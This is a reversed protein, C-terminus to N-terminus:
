RKSDEEPLTCLYPSIEAGLCGSAAECADREDGELTDCIEIIRLPAFPEIVAFRRGSPSPIILTGMGHSMEEETPGVLRTIAGTDTSRRWWSIVNHTSTAFYVYDGRPGFRERLTKPVKKWTLKRVGGALQVEYPEGHAMVLFAKKSLWGLFGFSESVSQDTECPSRAFNIPGNSPLKTPWRMVIHKNTVPTFPEEVPILACAGSSDCEDWCDNNRCACPGGQDCEWCDDEEEPCECSDQIRSVIFGVRDRFGLLYRFLLRGNPSITTPWEPQESLAAETCATHNCALVPEGARGSNALLTDDDFWAFGGFYHSVKTQSWSLEAVKVSPIVASWAGTSLHELELEGLCHFTTVAGYESFMVKATELLAADITQQLRPTKERMAASLEALVATLAALRDVKATPLRRLTDEAIDIGPQEDTEAPVLAEGVLTVRWYTLQEERLADPCWRMGRDISDITLMMHALLIPEADPAMSRVTLAMGHEELKSFLFNRSTHVPLWGPHETTEADVPGKGTDAMQPNRAYWVCLYSVSELSGDDNLASREPVCAKVVSNGELRLRLVPKIRKRAERLHKKTMTKDSDAQWSTKLTASGKEPVWFLAVKYTHADLTLNLPDFNAPPSQVALAWMGLPLPQAEGKVPVEIIPEYGDPLVLTSDEIPWAAEYIRAGLSTGPLGPTQPAERSPSEAALAVGPSLVTSSIGAGILMLLVMLPQTKRLSIKRRKYLPM